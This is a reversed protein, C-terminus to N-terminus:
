QKIFIIPLGFSMAELIIFPLNECVSAFLFLHTRKYFSVVESYSLSGLVNIKERIIDKSNLLDDIKKSQVKDKKGILNLRIDYGETILESVALAVNYNYKYPLFTQFM